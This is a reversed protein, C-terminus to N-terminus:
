SLNRNIKFFRLGEIGEFDKVNRTALKANLSLCTAAVIADGLDLHRYNRLLFGAMQSIKENAGVFEFRAMFADVIDLKKALKTEQGSYIETYVASPLYIKIQKQSALEFMSELLHGHGRLHDTVIDSDIVVLQM